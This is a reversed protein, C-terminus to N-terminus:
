QSHKELLENVLDKSISDDPKKVDLPKDLQKVPQPTESTLPNAAPRRRINQEQSNKAASTATSKNLTNQSINTKDIPSEQVPQPLPQIEVPPGDVVIPPKKFLKYEVDDGIQLGIKEALGDTTYLLAHMTETREIPSELRSLVISPVILVVDGTHNIAIVDVPASRNKAQIVVPSGADYIELMGTGEKYTSLELWDKEPMGAPRVDIQLLVGGQDTASSPHLILREKQFTIPNDAQMALAPLTFFSLCLLAWYRM